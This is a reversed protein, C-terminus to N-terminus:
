SVRHFKEFLNPFVGHPDLKAKAADYNPRSYVEWFSERTYHNRSILTKIGDLEHTKRELLESYDVEPHNNVKGYVACDIFLEDNQRTVLEDCLWPYPQPMRYPVIWLPYFAFEAVYWEFFDRFRRSPIFVDVVVDPRKKMGLVRALRRSWRILNTSGLFLKGVAFRVPRWELPPVTKTLWHCETDYRFCYDRTTLYDESREGTSRYYIRTWRYNSLYPAQDVFRGVCLVLQDPGHVIGDIFDVDAAAMQARMDAEFAEFTRSTRYELQVYPKAETLRFTVSTLIGLTGYSGHIMEFLDAENERSCRHVTGDGGVIEYEVCTDHFGGYKYSMSEVSCGAVAGGVTIGELEPVVIPLLGQALTQEILRAFSVGPEAVALRQERDISLVHDLASIDIPRSRFRADGPLPVFHHEGGKYIHVPVGHSRLERVDAAIREVIQQHSESRSAM